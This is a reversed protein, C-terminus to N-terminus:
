LTKHLTAFNMFAHVSFGTQSDSVHLLTWGSGDVVSPGAEYHSFQKMIYDISGTQAAQWVPHSNGLVIPVKLSWRAGAGSLNNVEAYFM